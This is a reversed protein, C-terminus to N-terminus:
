CASKREFRSDGAGLPQEVEIVRRRRNECRVVVAGAAHHVLSEFATQRNWAIKRDETEVVSWRRALDPGTQSGHALGAAVHTPDRRFLQEGANAIGIGSLEYLYGILQLDPLGGSLGGALRLRIFV